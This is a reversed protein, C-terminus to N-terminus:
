NEGLMKMCRLSRPSEKFVFHCLSGVESGIMSVPRKPAALRVGPSSCQTSGISESTSPLDTKSITNSEPGLLVIECSLVSPPSIAACFVAWRYGCFSPPQKPGKARKQGNHRVQVHTQEQNENTIVPWLM